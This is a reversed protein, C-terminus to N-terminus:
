EALPLTLEVKFLDGDVTLRLAGGQLETLSRAISLGLGSGETHRASDGRVFRELLEEGDVHLPTRSVNRFVVHAAGGIATLDVYVRTGPMAYKCVNGMLNDLVRWLLRGDALVTVPAEPLHTMVTLEASQAKEAYEGLVQELLVGMQCPALTVALNGTSAKSAELLDEVLKKLRASQRSLVELYERLVPDEPNQKEMLDVYNIISTLPTKIDHSVNTILETKFRESKMRQEVAQSLGDRIHNVDEATAKLAGPLHKTDIQHEVQGTAIRHIGKQLRVLGLVVLIVLPILLLKELLWLLFINDAEWRNVYILWGETLTLGALALLVQWLAPLQRAVARCGGVVWRLLTGIVTNRWLTRTKVRTVISMVFSFLLAFMVLATVALLVLAVMGGGSEDIAYLLGLGVAAYVLTFLDFPIRDIPNCVPEPCDNHRGAVGCLFVFAVLMLVWCLVGAGVCYWRNQHWWTVTRVGVELWSDGTLREVAPCYLTASVQGVQDKEYRDFYSYVDVSYALYNSGDYTSVLVTGSRDTIVYTYPMNDYAEDVTGTVVYDRAIEWDYLGLFYTAVQRQAMETTGEAGAVLISMGAGGVLLFGGLFLAATLFVATVKVPLRYYWKDSM